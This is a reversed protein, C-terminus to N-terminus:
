TISITKSTTYVNFRNNRLFGILTIDFEKATQVALSSPAGIACVVRVGAMAAKQLLEFSARGSLLVIHQTLPVLEMGIAAGILKDFANHRGVDERMLLLNGLTDFLACAHIGGTHEFLTQQTRLKEPLAHLFTASIQVPNNNPFLRCHTKVSEISAKGCVGCSSTTYFNHSLKDIDVQLNEHLEVRVINEFNEKTNLETCYRIQTIDADQDIIGETFLFGLALEFDNGPTRMTVSISKQKRAQATGYGLRIELPEEVALLDTTKTVGVTAIKHVPVAIVPTKSM